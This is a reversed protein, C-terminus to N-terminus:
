GIRQGRRRGARQWRWAAVGAGVAVLAAAIAVRIPPLLRLARVFTEAMAEPHHPDLAHTEALEREAESLKPPHFPVLTPGSPRALQDLARILSGGAAQLVAQFEDCGVGLHEALLSDRVRLIGARVDSARADEPRVEVALDCETDVGMSRNNINSSGIRLLTDDVVLVKAHVYIAASGATVPTCFRLRGHRDAERLRGLLLARGAGMVEEELWGRARDPNIIVVEPGDPEALRQALAESIRHASFYQSELYISRRASAIAALYLAEIERVEPQGRYAPQTRAIAVDVNQFTAELGEPWCDREPHPPDPRWGSAAFWRNRALDGLARAAEGDVATTVDHWPGHPTGNPWLRAPDDDRHASTDWRGGTVDIGGCFAVADDIVAIKQHHCGGPPHHQDLHFHLRHGGLWELLFFPTTGRFPMKLFALDWRLVYVRLAPNRRAAYNLLQGIKNPVSAPASGSRDLQIRADFDWGVLLISHRARLIAAKLHLFYDAADIIVAMRDAHALRWCTTGPMLVQSARDPEGRKSQEPDTM